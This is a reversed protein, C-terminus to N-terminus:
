DREELRNRIQPLPCPAEKSSSPDPPDMKSPLSCQTKEEIQASRIPHHATMLHGCVRLRPVYQRMSACVATHANLGRAHVRMCSRSPRELVGGSPPRPLKCDRVTQGLRAKSVECIHIRACARTTNHQNHECWVCLLKLLGLELNRGGEM